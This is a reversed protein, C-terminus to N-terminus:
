IEESELSSDPYSELSDNLKKYCTACLNLNLVNDGHRFISKHKADSDCSIGNLLKRDCKIKKAGRPTYVGIIENRKTVTIVEDGEALRCFNNRFERINM